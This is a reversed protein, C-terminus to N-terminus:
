LQIHPNKLREWPKVWSPGGNKPNNNIESALTAYIHEEYDLKIRDCEQFYKNRSAKYINWNLDSREKTWENHDRDKIRRLRRLYNNYWNKDYPRVKVRKKTIVRESIELCMASWKDCIEDIDDSEMCSEWDSNGLEERFLDFNANKFDWMDRTFCQRKVTKMNLIGYITCHDNEHVPSGVGVGKALMPLNTIILDLRTASTRTIRTPERIHQTLNNLSLFEELKDYDAKPGGPDANFDGVLVINAIKTGVAKDFGAQLGGWYGPAYTGVKQRYSIAILVQKVKNNVMIWMTEHNQEELEPMRKAALTDVVWAIVGGYGSDDPRDLRFPGSYGPLEYDSTPHESSLWTETATIIDYNNVLANKFATFRALKHGSRPLANLSRINVNCFTIDNLNPPGPNKEVDGCITILFIIWPDIQLHM